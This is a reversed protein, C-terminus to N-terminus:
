FSLRIGINEGRDEFGLSRALSRSAANSALSRWRVIGALAIAENVAAVAVRRGYGRGRAGPLTLVGIDSPEEMWVSLGAAAVLRGNERLGFVRTADALGSEEFEGEGVEDAFLRIDHESVVEIDRRDSVVPDSRYSHVAPGLVRPSFANLAMRWRVADLADEPTVARLVPELKARERGPARLRVAGPRVLVYVGPWPDRAWTTHIGPEWIRAVDVEFVEAWYGDVRAEAEARM